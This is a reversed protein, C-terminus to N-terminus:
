ASRGPDAAAAIEDDDDADPGVRDEGSAAGIELALQRDGELLRQEAALDRDRRELALDQQPDRRAGLVAM